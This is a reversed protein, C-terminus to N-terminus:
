MGTSSVCAGLTASLVVVNWGPSASSHFGTRFKFFFISVSGILTPLRKLFLLHSKLLSFAENARMVWKLSLPQM